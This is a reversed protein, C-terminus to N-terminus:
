YNSAGAKQGEASPKVDTVPAWAPTGEEFGNHTLRLLGTGDLRVAFLDGYPQPQNPLSIEEASYGARQSTFAVWKGDPSFHPHNNRGGGGILKRLGGGDPKILWVEFNDGRNSAFAIWEGTPSWDCMTDTWKGETLRRLNTGDRDMVYLNKSGGRGSRFVLRKGDPSFSPFGNNGANETMKNHDTGDAALFGVDVGDGAGGFVGGHSFAIREPEHSWSLSFLSRPQANFITKRGSGDLNMVDLRGFNAGTLAVRKHDPSFAPFAGALRLLTLGTDPPAGWLEVNPVNLGERVKHYVVQRGDASVAPNWHDAKDSTVPTLKGGDVDLLEVQRNGGRKVAVALVRGDASARPTYADVDDPTLRKLGTGDLHVQWVGWRGERRSHFALRGGGLFAPWGGNKVVLRRGTGDPRMVYLDTGGAVGSGSAFAILDGDPSWAPSYDAADGGSLRRVDSGVSRGTLWYYEALADVLEQVARGDPGTVTITLPEPKVRVRLPGAAVEKAENLERTRLKLEPKQEVLVTSPPGSRPEGKEDLPALVIQVTRESVASVSLEARGGWYRIEEAAAPGLACGTLGLHVAAAM